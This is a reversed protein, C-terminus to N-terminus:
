STGFSYLEFYLRWTYRLLGDHAAQHFRPGSTAARVGAHGHSDRHGGRVSVGPLVSVCM